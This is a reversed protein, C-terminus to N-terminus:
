DAATGGTVKAAWEERLVGYLCTDYTLGKATWRQRLRGELQFGLGELLRCSAVNDPNVEAELRHLGLSTFAHTCAATMAERMLGQHWHARGLVYGIEARRSAAEYRHLVLAGIVGGHDRHQLVLQRTSGAAVQADISALWACADDLTQWTAYPLWRTVHDDGNVVLLDALHAPSVPLLALRPTDIRDIRPLAPATAATPGSPTTLAPAGAPHAPPLPLRKLLTFQAIQPTYGRLELGVTYGQRAYFAPAQFTFTNLYILRTGREEAVQEFQRLLRAGIARRRHDPHVWLQQLEGCEGWTRGVAGGLVQGDRDRALVALARVEALAPESANFAGLGADVLDVEAPLSGHHVTFTLAPPLM